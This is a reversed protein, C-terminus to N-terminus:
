GGNQGAPQAQIHAALTLRISGDLLPKLWREVWGSLANSHVSNALSNSWILLLMLAIMM